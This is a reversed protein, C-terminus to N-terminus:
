FSSIINNDTISVAKLVGDPSKYYEVTVTDNSELDDLEINDAGRYIKAGQDVTFRLEESGDFLVLLSGISDVQSVVGQKSQTEPTSQEQQCFSMGPAMLFIALVCICLWIKM